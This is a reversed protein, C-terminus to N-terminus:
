ARLRTAGLSFALQYRVRLDPDDTMKDLKARLAPDAEFREALRLGHERIRSDADM